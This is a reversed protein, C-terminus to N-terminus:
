RSFSVPGQTKYMNYRIYSFLVTVYNFSQLVFNPLCRTKHQHELIYTLIALFVVIVCQLDVWAVALYLWLVGVTVILLNKTM